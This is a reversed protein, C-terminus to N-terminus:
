EERYTKCVRGGKAVKGSQYIEHREDYLDKILYRYLLKDYEDMPTKIRMVMYGNAIFVKDRKEDSAKQKKSSHSKGDLEIVIKENPFAFDAVAVLGMEEQCCAFQHVYHTNLRFGIHALYEMFEYERPSSICNKVEDIKVTKDFFNAQSRSLM